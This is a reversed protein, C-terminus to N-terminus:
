PQVPQKATPSRPMRRGDSIRTGSTCASRRRPMPPKSFNVHVSARHGERAVNVVPPWTPGSPRNKAMPGERAMNAVRFDGTTKTFMKISSSTAKAAAASTRQGPLRRVLMIYVEINHLSLCFNVFTCAGVGRAPAPLKEYIKFGPGRRPLKERGAILQPRVSRDESSRGERNKAKAGGSDGTWRNM